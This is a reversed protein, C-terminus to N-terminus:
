FAKFVVSEFHRDARILHLIRMNEPEDPPMATARVLLYYHSQRSEPHLM